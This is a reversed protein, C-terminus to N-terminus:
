VAAFANRAAAFINSHRVAVLRSMKSISKAPKQFKRILRRRM